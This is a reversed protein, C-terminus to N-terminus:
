TKASRAIRNGVIVVTIDRQPQSSQMDIVTVNRFVVSSTTPKVQAVLQASLTSIILLAFLTRM